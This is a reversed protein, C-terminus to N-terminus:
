RCGGAIQWIGDQAETWRAYRGLLPGHIPREEQPPHNLGRRKGAEEDGESRGILEKPRRELRQLTAIRRPNDSTM